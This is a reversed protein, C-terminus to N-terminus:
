LHMIAHPVVQQTLNVEKSDVREVGYADLLGPPLVLRTMEVLGDVGDWLFPPAVPGFLRGFGGRDLPAVAYGRVAHRLKCRGVRM